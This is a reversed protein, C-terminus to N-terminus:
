ADLADEINNATDRLYKVMEKGSMGSAEKMWTLMNPIDPKPIDKKEGAIGMLMFEGKFGWYALGDFGEGAMRHLTEQVIEKSM